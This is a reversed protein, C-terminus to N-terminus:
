LGNKHTKNKNGSKSNRLRSSTVSPLWTDISRGRARPAQGQQDGSVAAGLWPRQVERESHEACGQKGSAQAGGEKWNRAQRKRASVKRTRLKKTLGKSETRPGRGLGTDWGCPIGSIAPALSQDRQAPHAMWSQRPGLTDAGSGQQTRCVEKGSTM